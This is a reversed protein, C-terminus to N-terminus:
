QNVCMYTYECCVCCCYQLFISFQSCFVSSFPCRPPMLHMKFM